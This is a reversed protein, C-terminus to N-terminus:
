HLCAAPTACWSTAGSEAARAFLALGEQQKAIFRRERLPAGERVRPGPAALLGRDLGGALAFAIFDEPQNLVERAAEKILPLFAAEVGSGINGKELPHQLLSRARDDQNLIPRPIMRARLGGGEEGLLGCPQVHELQRGIRRVIVRNLLEPLLDFLVVCMQVVERSELRQGLLDLLRQEGKGLCRFFDQGEAAERGFQGLRSLLMTEFIKKKFAISGALRSTRCPM